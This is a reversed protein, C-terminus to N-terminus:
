GEAGWTYYHTRLSAPRDGAPAIRGGALPFDPGWLVRHHTVGVTRLSRSLAVSLIGGQHPTLPSYTLPSHYVYDLGRPSDELGATVV